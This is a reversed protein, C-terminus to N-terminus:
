KKEDLRKLLAIQQTELSILKKMHDLMLMDIKEHLSKIQIESKLNIMYDHESQKHDISSQRNQSMLIVPAQLAAITSLALNLLTFSYPDRAMGYRDLIVNATIWLVMFIGFFIIFTWSWGFAAVKDAIREGYTPTYAKILALDQTILKDEDINTKIITNLEDIKQQEQSLFAETTTQMTYLSALTVIMYEYWVYIKTLHLFFVYM